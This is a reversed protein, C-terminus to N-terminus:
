HEYEPSEMTDWSHASLQTATWAPPSATCGGYLPCCRWGWGQILSLQSLRLYPVCWGLNHIRSGTRIRSRTPDRFRTPGSDPRIQFNKPRTMHDSLAGSCSEPGAGKVKKVNFDTCNKFRQAWFVFCVFAYISFTNLNANGYHVM